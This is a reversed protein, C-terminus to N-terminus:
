QRVGKMTFDYYTCSTQAGNVIGTVYNLQKLKCTDSCAIGDADFTLQSTSGQTLLASLPSGSSTLAQSALPFNDDKSTITLYVTGFYVDREVAWTAKLPFPACGAQLPLPTLTVAYTGPVQAVGPTPPNSSGADDPGAGSDGSHGGASGGGDSGSSASADAVGVGGDEIPEGGDAEDGPLKDGNGDKSGFSPKESGPKQAAADTEDFSGNEGGDGSDGGCAILLALVGCRAKLYKM